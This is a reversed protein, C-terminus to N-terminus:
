VELPSVNGKVLLALLVCYTSPPLFQLKFGVKINIEFLEKLGMLRPLFLIVGL